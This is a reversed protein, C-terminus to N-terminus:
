NRASDQTSEAVCLISTGLPFTVRGLLARELWTLVMATRDILVSSQDLGLEPETGTSLRRKLLVPAVLYSFVHTLIIPRFGNDALQERLLPRSYRRVHGLAEDAKSWLWEHAPVNIIVRGGPALVRAAERLALGPQVLHELVDLFCVVDVSHDALPLEDVGGRIGNLGHRVVARGVLMENGEIVALRSPDWGLMATVGGSGAGTDVLWGTSGRPRGVRRMATAALAAKSRFWWHDTDARMLLEANAEDFVEAARGRRATAAVDRVNRWIRRTALVMAAGDRAVRVKSREDHRWEIPVEQVAIDLARAVAITEADWAYGREVCHPLIADWIEGAAAKAGCQTDVVGPTITAQLLRNYLRGLAERVRGEPRILRSAALDRSGVALVDARGAMDVVRELQDLPTSLDLDCFGRLRARLAGLGVAVAAGKGDHRRRLLRVVCEPNKAILEEVLEPTGDTSGDDVFLLESGPPHQAIFDVLHQGFEESRHQENFLPVVLGFGEVTTSM